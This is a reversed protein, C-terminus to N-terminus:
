REAALSRAQEVTAAFREQWTGDAIQRYLQRARNPESMRVLNQARKWLIEPNTPEADFALGFARDARELDGEAKMTEALDIWPKSEAPHQDIPTTWYDWALEREGLTHFIKGALQSPEPADPDILRWRDAIRIVKALFEKPASKQLSASAEAIKLYHNLLTRYDSRISELNVLEPLEHYELDLATELSALAVASQGFNRAIEERWRWLGAHRSLKKDQLVKSLLRDAQAFNKREALFHVGVLTVANQEAASAKALITTLIEDALAEDGLQEMQRSLQFANGFRKKSLLGDLTTHTFSNFKPGDGIPMQLTERFASDLPPLVGLKLTDAHLERFARASEAIKGAQLLSRAHEYRFVYGLGLPDNIPGFRKVAIDLMYDSTWTDGKRQMTDIIAYAFSPSSTEKLFEITKAQAIPMESPTPRQRWTIWLNRFRTMRQLFGDKPDPLDKILTKDDERQTRALFMALAPTGAKAPADAHRRFELTDVSAANLLTYYGLRGGGKKEIAAAFDIKGVSSAPYACQSVLVQRDVEASAGQDRRKEWYGATRIPMAMVVLDNVNPILSPAKAPALSRTLKNLSKDDADKWEISEDAHFIQRLAIKGAPMEVIRRESLRGDNAFVLHIVPPRPEQRAAFGTSAQQKPEAPAEGERVPVLAVTNGDVAKVDYGRALEDAGPLFAPNFSSVLNQQYRSFPRKAALGIEPYLHWLTVGDCVVQERLGSVLIREYTFQGIGNYHISYGAIPGEAAVTLTQWDAVRAREILRRAAADVVGVKPQEVDAEADLTTLIDASTDHLGPAYQVLDTFVRRDYELPPRAYLFGVKKADSGRQNTSYNLFEYGTYFGGEGTRSNSLPGTFLVPPVSYNNQKSPREFVELRTLDREAIRLESGRTFSLPNQMDIAVGPDAELTQLFFREKSNIERNVLDQERQVIIMRLAAAAALNDPDSERIKRAANEAQDFKKQKILRAVNSMGADTGGGERWAYERTARSRGYFIGTLPLGKPGYVGIDLAGGQGIKRFGAPAPLNIRSGWKEGDRIGVAENANVSGPVSIEAIRDAMYRVDTDSENMSPDVDIVRFTGAQARWLNRRVDAIEAEFRGPDTFLSNTEQGYTKTITRFNNLFTAIARETDSSLITGMVEECTPKCFDEFTIKPRPGDKPAPIIKIGGNEATFTLGLPDLLLNLASRMDKNDSRYSIPRDAKIGKRQLGDLDLSIPIGSTISILEILRDLPENQSSFNIPKRLRYEIGRLANIGEVKVPPKGDPEYVLPIKAPCPYTAWHDKRGRDVKYKEYDADTELVLLSTFPSMVYMAKSLAIIEDKHKDANAALLRDIELKAWTRPLYGAGPLVNMVALEKTIAKGDLTAKVIVRGPVAAKTTDVRTIACLEEGEALMTTEMLFPAKGNADHVQVDLWRPTNLTAVLDFARWAITEDPNIQTFLGNTREAAAKMFARNWRKGVGVGVYRVNEPLMRALKGADREGMAPIGGGIHLLHPNKADKALKLAAELGQQLNLAGVLHTTQLQKFLDGLNTPCVNKDAQKGKTDNVSLFTQGVNASVLTVTDDYEANKLIQKLVDVQTGALLPDRGASAEFLVIWDRRQRVPLNAMRPRYRLMVYEQNEHLFSTFRPEHRDVAANKEQLELVIDDAPKIDNAFLRMHTDGARPEAVMGAHSPSTIKMDGSNVIRANFSFQRVIPLSHGGAFRYRANGYLSALKQTYSLIIRKEQKAELPFVRMKFTTGDLWELLAPDRRQYRITEYVDAAHKREAMGGEMLKCQNNGDAVYMALRSLSADAPLPFYFTGELREWTTNFYTQDITTRAFGDEIHVDIHYQRLALKIEQGQPDIALLAGGAHQGNPVMPTEAAAMLERTWALTHSARPATTVTTASPALQQGAVVELGKVAVTGQTVTLGSDGDVAFHTGTATFERDATKVVFNKTAALNRDQRNEGLKSEALNSDQRWSPAVELYIQGKTLTLQRPGTSTMETKENVYVRSGDGLQVLRRQGAKTVLTAGDKLTPPPPADPRRRPMMGDRADDTWKALQVPPTAETDLPPTVVVTGEKVSQIPRFASSIALGILVCAAIGGVVVAAWRWRRAPTITAQPKVAAILTAKLAATFAPPVPDPEYAAQILKETNQDAITPEM